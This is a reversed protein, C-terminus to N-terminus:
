SNGMKNFLIIEWGRLLSNGMKMILLLGKFNKILSNEGNTKTKKRKRKLNLLSKSNGLRM